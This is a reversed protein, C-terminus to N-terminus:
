RPAEAPGSVSLGARIVPYVRRMRESDGRFRRMAQLGVLLTKVGKTDVDARATGAHQAHALLEALVEM